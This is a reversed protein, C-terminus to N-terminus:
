KSKEDVRWQSCPKKWDKHGPIPLKLSNLVVWGMHAAIGSTAHHIEELRPLIQQTYSEHYELDAMSKTDSAKYARIEKTVTIDVAKYSAKYRDFHANVFAIIDEWGGPHETTLDKLYHETM